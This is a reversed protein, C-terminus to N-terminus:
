DPKSGEASNSQMTGLHVLLSALGLASKSGGNSPETHINVTTPCQSGKPPSSNACEQISGYHAEPGLGTDERTTAYTGEQAGIHRSPHEIDPM